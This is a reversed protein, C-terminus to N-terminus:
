QKYIYKTVLVGMTDMPQLVTETLFDIAYSINSHGVNCEQTNFQFYPPGFPFLANPGPLAFPTVGCLFFQDTTKEYSVLGNFLTSALIIEGDLTSYTVPTVVDYGAYTYHFRLETSNVLEIEQLDLTSDLENQIETKLSDKYAGYLGINAPLGTIANASTVLYLGEDTQDVHDFRYFKPYKSEANDDKNCATVTIIFLVLTIHKM